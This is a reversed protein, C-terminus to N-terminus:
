TQFANVSRMVPLLFCLSTGRNNYPAAAGLQLEPM